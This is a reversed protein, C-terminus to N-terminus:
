LLNALSSHVLASKEKFFDIKEVAVWDVDKLVTLAKEIIKCFLVKVSITTAVVQNQFNTFDNGEPPITFM